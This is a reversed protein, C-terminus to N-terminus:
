NARQCESATIEGSSRAVVEGNVFFLVAPISTVHYRKNTMESRSVDIKVLKINDGLEQVVKELCAVAAISDENM